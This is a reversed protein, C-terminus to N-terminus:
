NGIADCTKQISGAVFGVAPHGMRLAAFPPNLCYRLAEPMVVYGVIVFGFRKRAQELARLLYGTQGGHAPIAAASLLQFYHLPDSRYESVAEFQAAHLLNDCVKNRGGKAASLIPCGAAVGLAKTLAGGIATEGFRIAPTSSFIFQFGSDVSVAGAGKATIRLAPSAGVNEALGVAAGPRGPGLILNTLSSFDNSFINSALPVNQLHAYHAVSMSNALNAACQFVQGQSQPTSHWQVYNM